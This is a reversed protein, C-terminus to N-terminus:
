ESPCSKLSPWSGFCGNDIALSGSLWCLSTTPVLIMLAEKLWAGVPSQITGRSHVSRLEVAACCSHPLKNEASSMTILLLGHRGGALPVPHEFLWGLMGKNDPMDFCYQVVGDNSQLKV